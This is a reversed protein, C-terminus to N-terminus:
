CLSEPVDLYHNHAKALTACADTEKCNLLLFLYALGVRSRFSVRPVHGGFLGARVLSPIPELRLRAHFCLLPLRACLLCVPRAEHPPM